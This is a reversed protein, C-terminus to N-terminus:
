GYAQIGLGFSYTLLGEKNYVRPEFPNGCYDSTITVTASLGCTSVFTGTIAFVDGAGGSADDIVSLDSDPQVVQDITTQALIPEIRPDGAPDVYSITNEYIDDNTM